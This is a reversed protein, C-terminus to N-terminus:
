VKRAEPVGVLTDWVGGVLPDLKEACHIVIKVDNQLRNEWDALCKGWLVNWGVNGLGGGKKCSFYVLVSRVINGM